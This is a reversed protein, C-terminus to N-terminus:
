RREVELAHLSGSNGLVFITSDAVVMNNRIGKGDLKRRGLLRGDRQAVIHVYGQEDAVVLYNSFAIPASLKRRAFSEQTWVVEGSNEDIATIIDDEDVVYIQSYGRALDLYTSIDQEWQPSGDRRSVAKVRGHYAAAFVQNQSVIPRSDVDVMRQLESRGEPLIVRHEWIPEGNESRFALIKGNAFGAYVIGDRVVPSSTGRLTLIPVQNDYTWVEAGDSVNMAVIRGDMTQAFVRGDDAAPTSLVESLLHARWREQGTAIDFAIVQGETTGILALGEGIGVGGSIFSQDARDLFNFRGFFGTKIQDIQTRWVRKGSFRDRSELVGYGDVAIVRDAVLGPVLRLYKKGLGEGVRGKWVRDLKFEADFKVLEAPKENKKEEDEEVWPLWTFWSCGAMLFSMMVVSSLKFIASSM